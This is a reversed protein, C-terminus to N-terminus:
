IIPLSPMLSNINTEKGEKIKFINLTIYSFTNPYHIHKSYMKKENKLINIKYQSTKTKTEQM